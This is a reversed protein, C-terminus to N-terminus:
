GSNDRDEGLVLLATLATHLDDLGHATAPEPRRTRWLYRSSGTRGILYGTLSRSALRPALTGADVPHDAEALGLGVALAHDPEDSERATSLKTLAPSPGNGRALAPARQGNRAAQLLVLSASLILGDVSLPLLRAATGSQGHTRGLDYIHSYSVVAAIAAVAAVALTTMWRIM